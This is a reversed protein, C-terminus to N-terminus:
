VISVLLLFTGRQIREDEYICVAPTVNCIGDLEIDTLFACIDVNAFDTSFYVFFLRVDTPFRVTTPTPVSSATMTM